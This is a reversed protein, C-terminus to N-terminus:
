LLIITVSRVQSCYSTRTLKKDFEELRVVDKGTM